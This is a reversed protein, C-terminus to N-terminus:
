HQHSTLQAELCSLFEGNHKFFCKEFEPEPWDGMDNLKARIEKLEVNIFKNRHEEKNRSFEQAATNIDIPKAKNAETYYFHLAIAKGFAENPLHEIKKAERLLWFLSFIKVKKLIFIIKGDSKFEHVNCNTATSKRDPFCFHSEVFKELSKKELHKIKEAEIFLWFFDVVEKFPVKFTIKKVFDSKDIENKKLDPFAVKNEEEIQSLKKILNEATMRQNSILISTVTYENPIIAVRWNIDLENADPDGSVIYPLWEKITEEGTKIEQNIENLEKNLMNLYRSFDKQFSNEQLENLFNQNKNYLDNVFEDPSNLQFNKYSIFNPQDQAFGPEEYRLLEFLLNKNKFKLPM